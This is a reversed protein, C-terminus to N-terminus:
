VELRAPTPPIFDRQSDETPGIPLAECALSRPMSLLANALAGAGLLVTAGLAAALLYTKPNDVIFVWPRPRAAHKIPKAPPAVRASISVVNSMANM